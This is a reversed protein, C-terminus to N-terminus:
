EEETLELGDGGCSACWGSGTCTRCRLELWPCGERHDGFVGPEQCGCSDAPHARHWDATSPGDFPEHGYVEREPGLLERFARVALRISRRMSIRFLKVRTM